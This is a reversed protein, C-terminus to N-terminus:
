LLLFIFYIINKNFGLHILQNQIENTIQQVLFGSIERM